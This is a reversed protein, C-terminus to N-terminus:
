GWDAHQREDLRGVLLQPESEGVGARCPQQVL